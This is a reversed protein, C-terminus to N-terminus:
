FSAPCLWTDSHRRQVVGSGAGLKRATHPFTRCTPDGRGGPRHSLHVPLASLLPLTWVLEPKLPSSVRNWWASLTPAGRVPGSPPCPATSVPCLPRTILGLYSEHLGSRLTGGPGCAWGVCPGLQERLWHELEWAELLRPSLPLPALLATSDQAARHATDLFVDM